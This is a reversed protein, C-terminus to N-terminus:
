CLLKCFSLLFAPTSALPDNLAAVHIGGKGSRYLGWASGCGVVLVVLFGAAAVALLVSCLQSACGSPPQAGRPMALVQM